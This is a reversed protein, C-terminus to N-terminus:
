TLPGNPLIAPHLVVQAVAAVAEWRWDDTVGHPEVVSEGETESVNLVEQRFPPDDHRVLRDSVPAELEPRSVSSPHPVPLAPQAVDPMQVLEKDSDPSFTEIEPPRDVLIPVRDVNEELLSPISLGRLPEKTLEQLSLGRNGVPEDGVFHSAVPSSM